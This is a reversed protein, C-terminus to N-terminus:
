NQPPYEQVPNGRGDLLRYMERLWKSSKYETEILLRAAHAMQNALSGCQGLRKIAQALAKPDYQPVVLGTRENHVAESISGADTAIVPLGSAMAELIVNPVGDRDNDRAVVSPVILVDAEQYHRIVEHHPLFGPMYVQSGLGLRGSEACLAQREPGDGILTCTFSFDEDRLHRCARLLYPFGKKEVFRGVALLRRPGHSQRKREHTCQNPDIGHRVLVFPAGPHRANLFACNTQTCTTRFHANRVVIDPTSEVYIDRAHATISYPAELMQSLFYATTAPLGLFHAHIHRIGQADSAIHASRALAGTLRRLMSPSDKLCERLLAVTKPRRLLSRCAQGCGISGLTRVEIDLGLQRLGVVEREVFTETVSPYEGVIYLLTGDM